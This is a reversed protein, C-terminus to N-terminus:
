VERTDRPTKEVAEEISSPAEASKPNINEQKCRKLLLADISNTIKEILAGEASPQQNMFTSFNSRDNEDKGGYPHWNSPNKFLDIGSVVKHLEEEGNCNFVAWFLNEFDM